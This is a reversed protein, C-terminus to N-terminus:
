VERKDESQSRAVAVAAVVAVAEVAAAMEAESPETTSSLLGAQVARVHRLMTEKEEEYEVNNEDVRSPVNDVDELSYEMGISELGDLDVLVNDNNGEGDEDEAGDDDEEDDVNGHEETDSHDRTFRSLQKLQQNLQAHDHQVEFNNALIMDQEDNYQELSNEVGDITDITQIEPNENYKRRKCNSLKSKADATITSKRKNQRNNISENNDCYRQESTEKVINTSNSDDSLKRNSVSPISSENSTIGKSSDVKSNYDNSDIIKELHPFEIGMKSNVPVTLSPLIKPLKRSKIDETYLQAADIDRIIGMEPLTSKPGIPLLNKKKKVRCIECMKHGKQDTPIISTCRNCLGKHELSLRRLRDKERCKKCVKYDGDDDRPGSCHVCKGELFRTMKKSRLMDRCHQCLVYSNRDDVPLETGCRTCVGEKQKLKHQWRKSRQRQLIRCHECMKFPKPGIQSFTKKCRNCSSTPYKALNEPRSDEYIIEIVQTGSEPLHKGNVKRHKKEESHKVDTDFNDINKTINQLNEPQKQDVTETTKIVKNNNSSLKDISPSIDTSVHQSCVGADLSLGM